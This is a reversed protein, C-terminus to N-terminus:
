FYKIKVQTRAFTPYLTKKSLSTQTCGYSIMPIGWGSSLLAGAECINECGPGPRSYMILQNACGPLM